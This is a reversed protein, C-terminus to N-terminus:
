GTIPPPTQGDDPASGVNDTTGSDPDPTEGTDEEIDGKDTSNVTKILNGDKDYCTISIGTNALDEKLSVSPMFIVRRATILKSSVDAVSEVSTSRMGFRMHGLGPVPVSHGETAWDGVVEGIADWAVRLMGRSMGCNKSATKLVKEVSLTSYLIAQLVFRYEGKHEGVKLMSQKAKVKIM